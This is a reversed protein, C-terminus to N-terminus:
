CLCNMHIIKTQIPPRVCAPLLRTEICKYDTLKKANSIKWSSQALMYYKLIHVNWLNHMRLHTHTHTHKHEEKMTLKKNSSLLVILNNLSYSVRMWNFISAFLIVCFTSSLLIDLVFFFWFRFLNEFHSEPMHLNRNRQEVKWYSAWKIQEIFKNFVKNLKKSRM